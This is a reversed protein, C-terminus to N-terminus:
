KRSQELTVRLQRIEQRLNDFRAPRAKRELKQITDSAKDWQKLHLQAKALGILGTPELSRHRDAQEWQEAAEEWRNERQRIEALLQHSEMENAQMEVISTYAREAEAPVNLDRYRNGLDEYLKANRRALQAAEFVQRAAGEKDGTKDYCAVLQNLTEADEPQLEAAARYQPLAKAFQNRAFYAGGIAKRLVPSGQGEQKEKADLLAVYADLDGAETLVGRLRNLYNTREHHNAPWCVIAGSAADVADATKGQRSYATAQNAYYQALVGDGIGRNASARQRLQIAEKYYESSQPWLENELTSYGLQGAM